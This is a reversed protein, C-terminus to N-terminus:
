IDLGVNDLTLLELEQQTAELLVSFMEPGRHARRSIPIPNVFLTPPVMGSCALHWLLMFILQSCSFM